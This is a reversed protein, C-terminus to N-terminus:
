ITCANYTEVREALNSQKTQLWLMYCTCISILRDLLHIGELLHKVITSSSEPINTLNNGEKLVRLVGASTKQSEQRDKTSRIHIAM